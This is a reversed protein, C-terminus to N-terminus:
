SQYTSIQPQGHSNNDIKVEASPVVAKPTPHNVNFFTCASNVRTLILEQHLSFMKGNCEVSINSHQGKQSFRGLDKKLTDFEFSQCVALFTELIGKDISESHQHLENLLENVSFSNQMLQELKEDGDKSLKDM